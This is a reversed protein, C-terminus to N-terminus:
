VRERITIIRGTERDEIEWRGYCYLAPSHPPYRSLLEGDWWMDEFEPEDWAWRATLRRAHFGGHCGTTGSGCLAFLPSRLPWSGNPTDLEFVQGNSIPVVHHCNRAPRGCVFCWEQTREYKRAGSKKWKRGNHTYHAGIHPLGYLMAKERSLGHLNM